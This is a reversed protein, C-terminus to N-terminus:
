PTETPAPSGKYPPPVALRFAAALAAVDVRDRERPEYGRHHELQLWPALCPVSKGAVEGRGLGDAPYPCDTGDPAAEAQWGTGHEDFTVPHLDITRGDHTRMVARTPLRDEVLHFGLEALASQVDALSALEVVLDVDEHLRTQNGLLADVGWGGDLWSAVGAQGLADLVALVDEPGM